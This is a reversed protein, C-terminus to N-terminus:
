DNAYFIKLLNEDDKYTHYLKVIKDYNGSM